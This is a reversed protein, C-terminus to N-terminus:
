SQARLILISCGGYKRRDVLEWSKPIEPEHKVDVELVFLGGEGLARLLEPMEFLESAFDRDGPVKYYPPDAFVIDYVSQNRKVFTLVDMGIVQGHPLQLSALNERIVKQCAGQQEVFDCSQAGRSLAEMGLSGAGAFLDLVKAEATHHQLMSFLAERTRDTTPRVVAKPVKIERRKATGAIIRM